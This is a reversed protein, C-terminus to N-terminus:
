PAYFDFVVLVYGNTVWVGIGVSTYEPNKLNVWHGGGYGKEGQFFTLSNIAVTNPSGSQCGINEAWHYSSYGARALRDGPNGDAFHTCIGRDAQYKAYPRAVSKSIGPNLSLPAVYKSYKGSGYGDCTGDSQVWGGTRTCNLLRLAYEETAAWKGGGSATSAPPETARPTPQPTPDPAPSTDGAPATGAATAPKAAKSAAKPTAVKFTARADKAGSAFAIPQGDASKAGPGIVAVYTRGAALPRAPEFVLVTDNEVWSFKGTSTTVGSLRFAAQTSTRDMKATFRVSVAAAADIGQAGDLPRFRVVSPRSGAEVRVVLRPAKAITLGASDVVPGDFTLTYVRNAVLPKDPTFTFKTSVDNPTDSAITGAVNPSISFASRLSAVDVGRTFAIRFSTGALVRSGHKSTASITATAAAMTVFVTRVPDTLAQGTAARAGARVTITYYTGAAWATKPAVSVSTSRDDWSVTVPVPPDVSLAAEVSARDMPLNFDVRAAQKTTFGAQVPAVQAAVQRPDIPATLHAKTPQPAAIFQFAVIVAVLLAPVGLAARRATRNRVLMPWYFGAIVPVAAVTALVKRLLM